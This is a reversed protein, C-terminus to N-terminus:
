LQFRVMSQLRRVAIARTTIATSQIAEPWIPRFSAGAGVPGTDCVSAFGKATETKGATTSGRERLSVSDPLVSASTLVMATARVFPVTVSSLTRRPDITFASSIIATRESSARSDFTACAAARRSCRWFSYSALRNSTSLPLRALSLRAWNSASKFPACASKACASASRSRPMTRAGTAPTM